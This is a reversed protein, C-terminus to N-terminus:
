HTETKAPQGIHSELRRSINMTAVLGAIGGILALIPGPLQVLPLSYASSSYYSYPYALMSGAVIILTVIGMATIVAPWTPNTWPSNLLHTCAWLVIIGIAFLVITFPGGALAIWSIAMM